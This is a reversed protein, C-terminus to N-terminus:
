VMLWGSGGFGGPHQRAGSSKSGAGKSGGFNGWSRSSTGSARSQGYGMGGERAEQMRNYDGMFTGGGRPGFGAARQKKVFDWFKSGVGSAGERFKQGGSKYGAKAMKKRLKKETRFADLKSQMDSIRGENKMKRRREDHDMRLEALKMKSEANAYRNKQHKGYAKLATSFFGRDKNKPEVWGSVRTGDAKQRTRYQSYPSPAFISSLPNASSMQNFPSTPSGWGEFWNSVWPPHQGNGWGGNGYGGRRRRSRGRSRRRRAM